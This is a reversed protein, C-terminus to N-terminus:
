NMILNRIEKSVRLSGKGDILKKGNNSYKRLSEKNKMISFVQKPIKNFDLNKYYGLNEFCQYKQFKQTAIHNQQSHNIVFCPLGVYMSEYVTVGMSFIGLKAIKMLPILSKVNEQIEFRNDNRILKKIKEVDNFFQGIVIKILFKEKKRKFENVLKISLNRKDGGGISILILNSQKKTKIKKYKQGLLAYKPGSLLRTKKIITPIKFQEKIEPLVIMDSFVINEL